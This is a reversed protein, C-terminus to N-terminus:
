SIMIKMDYLNVGIVYQSFKIEFEDLLNHYADFDFHYNNQKDVIAANLDKISTVLSDFGEVIDEPVVYYNTSYHRLNGFKM